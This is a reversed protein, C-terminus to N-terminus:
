RRMKRAPQMGGAEQLLQQWRVTPPEEGGKPPAAALSQNLMEVDVRGMGSAQIVRKLLDIAQKDPTVGQKIMVEYAELAQDYNKSRLCASMLCTYHLVTPKVGYQHANAIFHFAEAHAGCRGHVKLMAMLTFASPKVGSKVMDGFLQKALPLNGVYRCGELLHTLIIDDAKLGAASMDELLKLAQELDHKEVFAKILMSYTLIDPNSGNSKQGLSKMKEFLAYAKTLQNARLLNKIFVSCTVADMPWELRGSLELVRDAAAFDNNVMCVDLMTVCTVDDPHLGHKQMQTLCDFCRPLNGAQTFGKLITNYSVVDVVPKRDRFSPNSACSQDLEHAEQLLKMAGDLDKANVFTLLSLNLMLSNANAGVMRFIAEASNCDQLAAYTRFYLIYDKPQLGCQGFRDLMVAAQKAAGVELAANILCSFITKDPPLCDGFINYAVLCTDFQKRSSLLKLQIRWFDVTPAFGYDKMCQLMSQAVDPKTVRIASEILAAFVSENFFQARGDREAGRFLNLARTFEHQSLLRIIESAVKQAKAEMSEFKKESPIEKCAHPVQASPPISVEASLPRCVKKKQTTSYRWAYAAIFFVTIACVDQAVATLFSSVSEIFHLGLTM